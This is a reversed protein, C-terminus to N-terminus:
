DKHVRKKFSSIISWIAENKLFIEVIGYVLISSIVTFCIYGIDSSIIRSGIISCGVIGLCGVLSKLTASMIKSLNTYRHGIYSCWIFSIGEALVTTFAAANEKWIPIMILNLVVNVIASVVTAKFVVNEKQMPVLICQGWFWAGLCFLLAISLLMLSSEARIYTSDSLILVIQKRLVILGTISPLVLTLLTRYIDSSVENFERKKSEGILASLRPISVVLVSSLITKVISYIKTSVSYIGVTYDDCMLGLMTTDSSVYLTVTLSMAFLVMIPKIHKKWDIKTTLSVKCYKHAHVYNMVNSGVSSLVTIAAYKNVDNQTKVLLFLLILSLAQFIISRITIYAYDEYISYIWEIGITKFIVQLSLIILLSTYEHFKPVLMLLILLGIYAVITSLVNISFMENSFKEIKEKYNRLRAGERIAYTSIGLGAFLVVYSIISNSFNYRGINEVGLIKSVYPFSILPFVISMIGKIANLIMNIKLSKEKGQVM